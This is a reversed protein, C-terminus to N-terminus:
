CNVYSHGRVVDVNLNRYNGVPVFVNLHQTHSEGRTAEIDYWIEQMQIFQMATHTFLTNRPM